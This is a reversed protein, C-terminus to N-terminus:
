PTAAEVCQLMSRGLFALMRSANRAASAAQQIRHIHSAFCAVVVLRPARAVLDELVPGVTRESPIYGTEEANTSDSLFLHVGRRAEDALGLLDTPRGDLPAQDLKFDGSNLVTGFATDVAVAVGD